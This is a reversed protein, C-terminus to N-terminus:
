EAVWCQYYTSTSGQVKDTLASITGKEYVSDRTIQDVPIGTGNTKSKAITHGSNDTIRVSVSSVVQIYGSIPKKDWPSVAKTELLSLAGKKDGDDELKIFYSVGTTTESGNTGDSCQLLGAARANKFSNVCEKVTNVYSDKKSNDIYRQMAPIAVMMLIGMIVIVALLEILTFGKNNFKM